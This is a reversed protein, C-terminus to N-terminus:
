WTQEALKPVMAVMAARADKVRGLEQGESVTVNLFHFLAERAQEAAEECRGEGRAAWPDAPPTTRRLRDGEDTLLARAEVLVAFRGGPHPAPEPATRALFALRALGERAGKLVAGRQGGLVQSDDLAQSVAEWAEHITADEQM